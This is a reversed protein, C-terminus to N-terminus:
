EELVFNAVHKLVPDNKEGFRQVVDLHDYGRILQLTAETDAAQMAELASQAQPLLFAFDREALILLFPPRREKIHSLPSFRRLVEDDKGFVRYTVSDNFRDPQADRMAVLDWIASLAITGRLMEPTLSHRALWSPDLTLLAVLHGGASHGMLYLRMPDGGFRAANKRTWVIARTVDDLMNEIRTNIRYSPIVAFIGRRALSEGLTGYLGPGHEPARRDGSVWFGGHVFLVIPAGKVERPAYVDLKQKEHARAYAIDAHVVVDDREPARANGSQCSLALSLLMGGLLERM